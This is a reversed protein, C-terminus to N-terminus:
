SQQMSWDREPSSERGREFPPYLPPTLKSCRDPPTQKNLCTRKKCGGTERERQRDTQRDTEGEREGGRGGERGTDREGSSTDAQEMSRGFDTGGHGNEMGQSLSLSLHLPLSFSLPLSLSPSTPLSLSPSLPLSLSPPLSFPLPLCLALYSFLCTM